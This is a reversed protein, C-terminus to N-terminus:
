SRQLAARSPMHWSSHTLAYIRTFGSQLLRCTGVCAAQECRTAARTANWLHHCWARIDASPRNLIQKEMRVTSCATVRVAQCVRFGFRGGLPRHESSPPRQPASAARSSGHCSAAGEDAPLAGGGGADAGASSGMAMKKWCSCPPRRHKTETGGAWGTVRTREAESQSSSLQLSGQPAYPTDVLLM